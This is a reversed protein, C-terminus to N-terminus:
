FTFTGGPYVIAGASDLYKILISNELNTNMETAKFAVSRDPNGLEDNEFTRIGWIVFSTTFSSIGSGYLPTGMPSITEVNITWSGTIIRNYQDRVTVTISWYAASMPVPLGFYWPVIYDDYTGQEAFYWDFYLQNPVPITYLRGICDATVEIMGPYVLVFGLQIHDAPVAPFTPEGSSYSGQVVNVVEDTGIVILDYRFQTSSATALTVFGCGSYTGSFEITTADMVINPEDMTISSNDMEILPLDYEVQDIRYTGYTVVVGMGGDDAPLAQLGSLIGDALDETPPATGGPLITPILFGHGMIEIRSKNGGPHSIRVANGVKLWQPTSEWNENYYAKIYTNSGQIKVRCYKNVTDIDYIVADRLETKRDLMRRTHSDILRSGYTRM